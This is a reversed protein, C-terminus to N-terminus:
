PVQPGTISSSASQSGEGQAPFPRFDVTAHANTFVPTGASRSTLVLLDGGGVADSGVGQLIRAGADDRLAQGKTANAYQAGANIALAASHGDRNATNFSTVAAANTNTTGAIFDNGVTTFLTLIGVVGNLADPAPCARLADAETAYGMTASPAKTTVTGAATSQLLWVGWAGGTVTETGTFAQTGALAVNTMVGAVNQWFAERAFTVAAAATFQPSGVADLLGVVAAKITGAATAVVGAYVSLDSVRYNYRPQTQFIPTDVGTAGPVLAPVTVSKRLAKADRHINRDQTAM